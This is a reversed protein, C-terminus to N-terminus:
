KIDLEVDGVNDNMSANSEISVQISPSDKYSGSINIRYPNNPLVSLNFRHIMTSSANDNLYEDKIKLTVTCGVTEGAEKLMVFWPETDEKTWGITDGNLAEIGNIAINYDSFFEDLTEKWKVMIIGCTPKCTIQVSTYSGSQVRVKSEGYLYMENRSAVCETGCFAKVTYVGAELELPLSKLLVPAPASYVLLTDKYIEVVYNDTDTYYSSSVARSGIEKGIQAKIDIRLYGINQPELEEDDVDNKLYTVISDISEYEYRTQTGDKQYIIIGQATVSLDYLSLLLILFLKSLISNKM